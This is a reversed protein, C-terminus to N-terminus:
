SSTLSQAEAIIRTAMEETIFKIKLVTEPTAAALKEVSDIGIDSLQKARPEGIGHIDTLRRVQAATQPSASTVTVPRVIVPRPEMTQRAIAAQPRATPGGVSVVESSCNACRGRTAPRGAPTTTQEPEIMETEEQCHACYCGRAKQDVPKCLMGAPIPPAKPEVREFGVRVQSLNLDGPSEAIFKVPVITFREYRLSFRKVELTAGAPVVVRVQVEASGAPVTGSATTLDLATPELQVVMPEAAPGKDAKLWRLEIRPTESSGAFSKGEFEVTFPKDTQAAVTQVLEATTTGANQLKLADGAESVIFGPTTEPELTWGTLQGNKKSKFDGNALAEGTVSLSALDVFATADKGLSFRIEAQKAGPPATLPGSVGSVTRSNLRHFVLTPVPPPGPPLQPNVPAIEIPISDTQVHGCDDGLWLIEALAPQDDTFSETAIGWFSFEYPVSEAVPVVQSLSTPLTASGLQAVLHFPAILCTPKVDGSTLQWESPRRSGFQVSSLTNTGSNVLYLQEGRPSIAMSEALPPPTTFSENLDFNALVIHRDLDITAISRPGQSFVYARASDPSVAVVRPGPRVNVVAATTRSATDILSVTNDTLNPVVATKGNPTLALDIPGRGVAVTALPPPAPLVAPVSIDVIQLVAPNASGRNVLLYLLKEDPSLAIDLPSGTQTADAQVERVQLSLNAQELIATDVIRIRNTRPTASNLSVLYLRRGDASLALRIAPGDSTSLIANVPDGVAHGAELNVVQLSRGDTVYARKGDPSVVFHIPEFIPLAIRSDELEQNCDVDVLLLVGAKLSTQDLVYALNGGPSFAVTNIPAGMQIPGRSNMQNGVIEWQEFERNVLHQAEPVVDSSIAEIYENIGDALETDVTFDVRGLPEFRDLKKRVQKDRNEESGILLSVPMKFAKPRNRLRFFGVFPPELKATSTPNALLPSAKWSLGGDRTLQMTVQADKDTAPVDPERISWAARGELCQLLLWYRAPKKSGKAFLFEAPLPVSTWVPGKQPRQEIGFAVPAPLLPIEDPKGDFDGRIDLQLRASPTLAELLVDIAVASIEDTLTVLQPIPSALDKFGLIQSQSYSPSIEVAGAPYDPGTPGFAVRTEVFSGRVRASTQSAVIRSNAPVAVSLESSPSKAVTSVDFPMAVEPVAAPLVEQQELFEIELDIRLRAISDSHVVVALDYFGNELKATTLAAQLVAAFDPSTEPKVLEGLHTWFPALEGVRLSVNTPVSRITVSSLRPTFVPAVTNTLKMKSVTLGPLAVSSGTLVFLDAPVADSPTKFAGNKNIEVYTGGGVDVQLNTANFNGVVGSLTRRGHFDVEVWAITPAAPPPPNRATTQTAGFNLSSPAFDLSEIFSGSLQSEVPTVTAVASLIKANAPITRWRFVRDGEFPVNGNVSNRLKM